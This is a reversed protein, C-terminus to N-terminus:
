EIIIPEGLFKPQKHTLFDIFVKVRAFKERMQTKFGAYQDVDRANYGIVDLGYHRAIYVARENHFQQSIITFETQGFIKEMRVVSDLTRFGAYDLYIVEAPIGNKILDEKMLQPENYGKVHNDGSVVISKIKGSKYLETAADIRYKFYYNLSGNSLYKSTGLVLGVKNKPINEKNDYLFHSTRSGIVINAVIIILVILLIFILTVWIIKKLM